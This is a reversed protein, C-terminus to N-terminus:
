PKFERLFEVLGQPGEVVRKSLRRVDERAHSMAVGIDAFQIMEQDNGDDGVAIVRSLNLQDRIWSAASWKSYHEDFVELACFESYGLNQVLVAKLGSPLVDQLKKQLFSMESFKGLSSVELLPTEKMLVVESLDKLILSRQFPRRELSQVSKFQDRTKETYAYDFSFRHGDSVFFAPFGFFEMFKAIEVARSHDLDASLVTQERSNKIVLGNHVVVYPLHPMDRTDLLAARYRRGTAVIVSAFSALRNVEALLEDPIGRGGKPLDHVLTGDLDFVFLDKSM